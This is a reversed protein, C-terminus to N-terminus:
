SMWLHGGVVIVATLLASLASFLSILWASEVKEKHSLRHAHSM